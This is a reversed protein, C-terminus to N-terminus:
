DIPFVLKKETQNNGRSKLEITPKKTIEGAITAKIGAKKTQALVADPDSSVVLLGQGMNFVNYMETDDIKALTQIKSMPEGPAFLNDLNAGLGLGALKRSLKEPIGGGTIHAIASVDATPAIDPRYGGTMAKVLGSYIQSPRLVAEGWSIGEKFEQTHWVHGLNMALTKLVLSYGNCRFGEERLAVVADGAKVKSGDLLRERLGLWAVSGSWDYRFEGYGGIDKGHEATEGNEIVIGAKNAGSAIGEALESIYRSFKTKREPGDDKKGLTNIVLTTTISIPEGGVASADDATMAVLDEGVTDHRGVRQAVKPKNGLGDACHYQVFEADPYQRALEILPSLSVGRVGSFGDTLTQPEGFEGARNPWTSVSAEFFKRSALNGGELNVGAREYADSAGM